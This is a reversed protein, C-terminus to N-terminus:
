LRTLYRGIEPQQRGVLAAEEYGFSLTLKLGKNERLIDFLQLINEATWRECSINTEQYTEPMTNTIM